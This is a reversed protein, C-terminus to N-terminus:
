YKKQYAGIVAPYNPMTQETFMVRRYRPNACNVSTTINAQHKLGVNDEFYQRQCMWTSFKAKAKLSQKFIYIYIYTHVNNYLFTYVTYM